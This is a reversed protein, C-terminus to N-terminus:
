GVQGLRVEEGKGWVRWGMIALKVCHMVALDINVWVKM